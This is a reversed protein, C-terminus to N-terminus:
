CSDGCDCKINRLEPGSSGQCTQSRAEIVKLLARPLSHEPSLIYSKWPISHHSKQKPNNRSVDHNQDSILESLEAMFDSEAMESVSPCRVQRWGGPKLTESSSGLMGRAPPVSCTGLRGLSLPIDHKYMRLKSTHMYIYIYIYTYTYIYIYM